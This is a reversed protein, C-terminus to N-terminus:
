YVTILLCAGWGKRYIPVPELPPALIFVTILTCYDSMTKKLGIIM